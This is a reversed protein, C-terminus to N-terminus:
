ASFEAFIRAARQRDHPAFTAQIRFLKSPTVLYASRKQGLPHKWLPPPPETETTFFKQTCLPKTSQHFLLYSPRYKVSWDMNKAGPHM